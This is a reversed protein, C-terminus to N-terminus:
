SFLGHIDERGLRPKCKKKLNLYFVFNATGSHVSFFFVFIPGAHSYNLLLM